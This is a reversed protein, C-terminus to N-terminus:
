SKLSRIYHLFHYFPLCFLFDRCMPVLFSVYLTMRVTERERDGGGERCSLVDTVASCKFWKKWEECGDETVKVMCVIQEKSAELSSGATSSFLVETSCRIGSMGIDYVHKKFLQFTHLIHLSWVFWVRTNFSSPNVVTQCWLYTFWYLGSLFNM